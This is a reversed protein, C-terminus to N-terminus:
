TWIAVFSSDPWVAKLYGSRPLFWGMMVEAVTPDRGARPGTSTPCRGARPRPCFDRKFIPAQLGAFRAGQSLRGTKLGWDYFMLYTQSHSQQTKLFRGTQPGSIREKQLRFTGLGACFVWEFHHPAKRGVTQFHNQAPKLGNLGCLDVIEPGSVPRNKFVWCDM